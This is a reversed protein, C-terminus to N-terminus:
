FLYIQKGVIVFPIGEEILKEKIYFTTYEFFIACNLGTLKEIRARDKRLMVLGMEGKPCIAIWLLGNTEMRLVDYRGRYALPLKEYIEKDEEIIVNQRLAKELFEKM